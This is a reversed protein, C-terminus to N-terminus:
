KWASCKPCLKGASSLMPSAPRSATGESGPGNTTKLLAPCPIWDQLSVIRTMGLRVHWGGCTFNKVPVGGLDCALAVLVKFFSSYMLHKGSKVLPDEYEYQRLLAQPLGKLLSSLASDCKDTELSSISIMKNLGSTMLRRLGQLAWMRQSAVTLFFTDTRIRRCHQSTEFARCTGLTSLQACAALAAALRTILNKDSSLSLRSDLLCM